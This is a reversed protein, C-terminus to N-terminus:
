FPIDDVSPESPPYSAMRTEHCPDCYCADTIVQVPDLTCKTSPRDILDKYGVDVLADIAKSVLRQREEYIGRGLYLYNIADTFRAEMPESEVHSNMGKLIAIIGKMFYVSWNSAPNTLDAKIGLMRFIEAILKFNALRDNKPDAYDAGKTRLVEACERQQQAILANFQQDTM